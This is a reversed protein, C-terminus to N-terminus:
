RAQMSTVYVIIREHELPGIHTRYFLPDATLGPKTVPHKRAEEKQLSQKPQVDFGQAGLKWANSPYQRAARM